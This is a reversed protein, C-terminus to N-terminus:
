RSLQRLRGDFFREYEHVVETNEFLVGSREALLARMAQQFATDRALRLALRAYHDADEAILDHIGMFRYMGATHLGRQFEGPLTVVPANAAWAELTTNYGNFHPTDLVADCVHELNMLDQVAMPPLCSIRDALDGMRRRLRRLVVTTWHAVPSRTLLIRVRPDAALIAELIRDFDPHIKFVYQPCIFLYEDDRFGYDARQKLQAPLEPRYYYSFQPVGRLLHLKESYHAQADPPELADVSIWWDINPIGSTEPHGFHTCQLPALRAHALMTQYPNMGLDVYFIADCRAEALTDRDRELHGQLDIVRDAAGRM